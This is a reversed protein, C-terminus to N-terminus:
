FEFIISVKNGRNNWAIAHSFMKLISLGASEQNEEYRSYDFGNGEDEISIYVLSPCVLYNIRIEKDFNNRNGHEIANVIAETLILSLEGVKKQPFNYTKVLNSIIATITSKLFSLSSKISISDTPTENIKNCQRCESVRNSCNSYVVASNNNKLNYNHPM